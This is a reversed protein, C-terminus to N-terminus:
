ITITEDVSQTLFFFAKQQSYISTHLSRLKWRIADHSIFIAPKGYLFGTRILHCGDPLPSPPLRPKTM